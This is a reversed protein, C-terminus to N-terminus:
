PHFRNFIPTSGLPTRSVGNAQVKSFIFAWLGATLVQAAAFGVRLYVINDGETFDIKNMMYLLPMM